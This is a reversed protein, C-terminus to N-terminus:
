KALLDGAGNALLREALRKGLQEAEDLSGSIDDRMIRKGLPDAVLGHLRIKKDRVVAYGAIPLLCGGGLSL